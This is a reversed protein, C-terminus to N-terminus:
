VNPHFVVGPRNPGICHSHLQSTAHKTCSCCCRLILDAMCLLVDSEEDADWSSADGIDVADGMIGM